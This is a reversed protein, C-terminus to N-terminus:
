GDVRMAPKVACEILRQVLQDFSIGAAKAAMPALSLDTMGPLTNLELCYFQRDPALIFDVRALGSAGVVDYAKLAAQQIKDAIESPIEAPVFYESMGKTYKSEYDYLGKKPKIEVLPLPERNLVAATIERGAIFQEVLIHRSEQSATVLAPHLDEVEEVKTLGVTSGSDNPKVILPLSMREAIERVIGYPVFEDELRYLRFEPTLIGVSAFLRKSVAKDMAIASATMNSGTYAVGALELLAQVTGNEGSGGHLAIFVCDIDASKATSLTDVLSLSVPKTPLSAGQDPLAGTATRSQNDLQPRGGLPDVALVEHGLRQLAAQVSRGSNLSVERENSDGGTLLVIKM